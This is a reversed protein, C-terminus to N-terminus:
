STQGMDLTKFSAIISDIEKIVVGTFNDAAGSGLLLALLALIDEGLTNTAKGLGFFVHVDRGGFQVPEVLDGAKHGPGLSTQFLGDGLMVLATGTDIM